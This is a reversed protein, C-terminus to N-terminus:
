SIPGFRGLPAFRFVAKGEIDERPVCGLASSRSDRSINRNDGLVFYSDPPVTVPFPIDGMRHTSEAIYPEDLLQGDVFVMGTEFDIQVTEGGRAIIRKVLHKDRRDKARVAVIDGPQPDDYGAMQVLICDGDSLTPEMSSGRVLSARVFFMSGGALLLGAALVLLLDRLSNKLSYSQEPTLTDSGNDMLQEIELKEPEVPFEGEYPL